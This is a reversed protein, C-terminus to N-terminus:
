LHGDPYDNTQLIKIRTCEKARSNCSVYGYSHLALDHRIYAIKAVNSEQM